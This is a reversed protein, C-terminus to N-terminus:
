RADRKRNKEAFSATYGDLSFLFKLLEWNKNAQITSLKRYRTHDEEDSNTSTRTKDQALDLCTKGAQNQTLLQVAGREYIKLCLDTPAQHLIATHLPTNGDDDPSNIFELANRKYLFTDEVLRWQQNELAAHWINKGQDGTYSLMAEIGAILPSGEFGGGLVCDTIRDDGNACAHMLLSYGRSDVLPINVETHLWQIIPLGRHLVLLAWYIPSDGKENLLTADAGRSHLYQVMPLHGVACATHFLSDGDVDRHRAVDVGYSEELWQVLELNSYRVAEECTSHALEKQLDAPWSDEIDEFVGQVQSDRGFMFLNEICKQTRDLRTM